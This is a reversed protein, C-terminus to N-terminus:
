ASNRCLVGWGHRQGNTQQWAKPFCFHCLGTKGQENICNLGESHHIFHPVSHWQARSCLILLISSTYDTKIHMYTEGVQEQITQSNQLIDWYPKKKEWTTTPYFVGVCAILIIWINCPITICIIAWTPQTGFTMSDYWLVTKKTHLLYLACLISTKQICPVGSSSCKAFACYIGM